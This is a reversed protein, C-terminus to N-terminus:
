LLIWTKASDKGDATATYPDKPIPPAASDLSVRSEPLLRSKTEFITSETIRFRTSTKRSTPSIRFSTGDVTTSSMPPLTSETPDEPLSICRSIVSVQSADRFGNGSLLKEM